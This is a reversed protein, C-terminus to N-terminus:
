IGLEENIGGSTFGIVTGGLNSTKYIKRQNADISYTFDGVTFGQKCASPVNRYWDDWQSNERAIREAEERAIREAEERRRREEEERAIREAEERRRREEEERRRREEADQLGDLRVKENCAQLFEARTIETGIGRM